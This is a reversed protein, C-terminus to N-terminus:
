QDDAGAPISAGDGVSLIRDIGISFSPTPPLLSVILFSERPFDFFYGPHALVGHRTLLRLVLEEEPVLTPVQIVAYWGGQATLVRCAPASRVATNLQHYNALTRACIQARVVAGREFLEAAALQVPTSVSLYTDCILELRELAEGM